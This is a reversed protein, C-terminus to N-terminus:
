VTPGQHALKFEHKIASLMLEKLREPYNHSSNSSGRM